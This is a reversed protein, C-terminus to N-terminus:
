KYHLLYSRFITILYSVNAATWVYFVTPEIDIISLSILEPLSNLIKILTALLERSDDYYRRNLIGRYIRLGPKDQLLDFDKNSKLYTNARDFEAGDRIGYGLVANYDEGDKAIILYEKPGWVDKKLVYQISYKFGPMQIPITSFRQKICWDELQVTSLGM